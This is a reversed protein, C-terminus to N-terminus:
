ALKETEASDRIWVCVQGVKSSPSQLNGTIPEEGIMVFVSLLVIVRNRSLRLSCAGGADDARFFVYRIKVANLTAKWRKVTRNRHADVAFGFKPSRNQGRGFGAHMLRL